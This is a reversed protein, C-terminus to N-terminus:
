SHALGYYFAISIPFHISPTFTLCTHKKWRINGRKNGIKDM